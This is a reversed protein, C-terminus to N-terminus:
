GRLLTPIVSAFAETKEKTALSTRPEFANNESKAMLLYESFKEISKKNYVSVIKDKVSLNSGFAILTNKKQEISGNEIIDIVEAMLNFDKTAESFWDVNINNKQIKLQNLEDKIENEIELYNQEEEESIDRTIRNITIRKLKTKLSLEQSEFNSKIALQEELEKNKVKYINDICWKSLEKSISIKEEYNKLLAKELNREEIGNKPCITRHKKDNICYYFIYSLYSPDIMDVIKTNCTPCSEKNLNSFKKHCKSCIVQFKFDPFTAGNCTGCKTFHNYVSERKTTRKIGKNGLMAQIKWYEEENITRPLRSDLECRIENHFFFGAHIPDRFLTYIYSLSIPKGGEKKRLSTTLKLEDKAYKHLQPVSYKGTLMKQFLQQVLPFRIPDVVWKRNGKEEKTDNTFGIKSMGNPLGRLARGELARKVVVSKDDSDKKSMSFDLQLLFKDNGNNYYTRSPTKIEKLKGIDMLYILAGADIPNRSLRNAHWVFLGNIIGAEISKTLSGFIPRGPSFASQSEGPFKIKINLEEKLEIEDLERQQDKISNVQKGEDESSKRYYAGYVIKENQKKM